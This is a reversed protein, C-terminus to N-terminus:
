AGEPLTRGQQGPAELGLNLLLKYFGLLVTGVEWMWIDNQNWSNGSDLTPLLFFWELFDM